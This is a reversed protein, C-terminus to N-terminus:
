GSVHSNSTFVIAVYGEMGPLVVGIVETDLFPLQAFPALEQGSANFVLLRSLSLFL